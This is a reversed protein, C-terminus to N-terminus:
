MGLAIRGYREGLKSPEPVTQDLLPKWTEYDAFMARMVEASHGHLRLRVLWPPLFKWMGDRLETQHDCLRVFPIRPPADPADQKRQYYRQLEYAALDALQLGPSGRM